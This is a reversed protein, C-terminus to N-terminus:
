TTQLYISLWLIPIVVWDITGAITYILGSPKNSKTVKTGTRIEWLLDPIRSVMLMIAVIVAWITWWRFLLYLYVVFTVTIAVDVRRLRTAERKLSDYGSENLQAVALDMPDKRVIGRVIFGILNTGILMMVLWGVLAKVISLLIEVV